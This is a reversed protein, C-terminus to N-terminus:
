KQIIKWICSQYPDLKTPRELVSKSYRKGTWFDEIEVEGRLLPFIKDARIIIEQPVKDWNFIGLIAPLYTDNTIALWQQSPTKEMFDLPLSDAVQRHLYHFSSLWKTREQPLVFNRKDFQIQSLRDGWMLLGGSLAVFNGWTRAQDDTFKSNMIVTDPDNIWWRRNYAFRNTAAGASMVQNNWDDSSTDDGIRQIDIIGLALPGMANCGLLIVNNGVGKRISKWLQRHIQANTMYPNYSVMERSFSGFHSEAGWYGMMDFTVFDSKLYEIGYDNVFRRSESEIWKLVDTKTPNLYGGVIDEKNPYKEKSTIWDPHRKFIESKVNTALPRWWIGFKMGVKKIKEGIKKMGSPFYRNAVWPGGDCVCISEREFGEQWGDDVVYIGRLEAPLFKEIAALNEFVLNEDTIGHHGYWDCIGYFREKRVRVKNIDAVLECYKIFTEAPDDGELIILTEMEFSSRRAVQLPNSGSLTSGKATLERPGNGWVGSGQLEWCLLTNPLTYFGAVLTRKKSSNWLVLHWPSLITDRIGVRTPRAEGYLREWGDRLAILEDKGPAWVLKGEFIPSIGRIPFNEENNNTVVLRLLAADPIPSSFNFTIQPHDQSGQWVYEGNPISKPKERLVIYREGEPPLLAIKIEGLIVKGNEGIISFGNSSFDINM